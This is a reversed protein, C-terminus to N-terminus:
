FERKGKALVEMVNADLHCKNQGLLTKSTLLRTKSISDKNISKLIIIFHLPLFHQYITITLFTPLIYHYFINTFHLPLFHQYFKFTFHFPLFHKYFKITIHKKFFVSMSKSWITSHISYFFILSYRSVCQSNGTVIFLYKWLRICDCM